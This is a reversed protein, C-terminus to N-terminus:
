KRTMGNPWGQEVEIVYADYSTLHPETLAALPQLSLIGAWHQNKNMIGSSLRFHFGGMKGTPDQNKPNMETVLWVECKEEHLFNLQAEKLVRNNLNWMGIRM